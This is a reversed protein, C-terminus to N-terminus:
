HNYGSYGVCAAVNDGLFWNTRNADKVGEGPSGAAKNSIRCFGSFKKDTKVIRIFGVIKGTGKGRSGLTREDM